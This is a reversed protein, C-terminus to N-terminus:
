RTVHREKTAQTTAMDVDNGACLYEGERMICGIDSVITYNRENHVTFHTFLYQSVQPTGLLGFIWVGLASVPTIGPGSLVMEKRM